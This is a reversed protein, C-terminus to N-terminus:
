PLYSGFSVTQGEVVTGPALKDIPRGFRKAVTTRRITLGTGPGEIIQGDGAYLMVHVIRLPNGAESLFILDAARPTTIPRARLFQEHADRPIERGVTRYALNVLGSCDVGTIQDSGPGAQPSRGGWYYTDGILRHASRIIQRRTEHPPLARAERLSRAEHPQLWATAGDYLEVKWLHGAIDIARLRTGMPLNRGSPRTTYPDEWLTAWKATIVIDPERLREDSVLVSEPVWGPYGRWGQTHTFEPQELAEVYAWGDKRKRVRVREGYLLQTEQLPDHIEPQAYTHPEARLDTVPVAIRVPVGATACGALWWPLAVWLIRKAFDNNRL